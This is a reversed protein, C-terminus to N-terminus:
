ARYGEVAATMNVGFWCVGQASTDTVLNTEEPALVRVAPEYDELFVAEEDQVYSSVGTVTWVARGTSARDVKLVRWLADRVEILAGPAIVDPM